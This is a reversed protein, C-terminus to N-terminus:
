SSAGFPRASRGERGPRDKVLFARRSTDVPILKPHNVMDSEIDLILIWARSSMLTAYPARRFGKGNCPV